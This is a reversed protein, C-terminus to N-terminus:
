AQIDNLNKEIEEKVSIDMIGGYIDYYSNLINLALEQQGLTKYMVCIDLVIWFTLDRQPKKDLAYMYYIIAGESDGTEKLRFAEEICEAITLPERDHVNNEIGMKDINEVSDVSIELNNEEPTTNEENNESNDSNEHNKGIFNVFIKELYNEEGAAASELVTESEAANPKKKKTGIRPVIHAILLSLIFALLIYVALAAAAILILVSPEMGGKKYSSLISFIGPLALAATVSALVVSLLTKVNLIKMRLFILFLIAASVIVTCLVAIAYTPM